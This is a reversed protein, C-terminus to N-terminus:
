KGVNKGDVNRFFFVPAKAPQQNAFRFTHFVCFSQSAYIDILVHRYEEHIDIKSFELSSTEPNIIMM